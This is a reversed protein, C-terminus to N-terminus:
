IVKKLFLIFVVKLYIWSYKLMYKTYVNLIRELACLAFFCSSFALGYNLAQGGVASRLRLPCLGLCLRVPDLTALSPCPVM